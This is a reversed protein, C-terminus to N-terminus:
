HICVATPPKNNSIHLTALALKKQPNEPAYGSPLLSPLPFTVMPFCDEYIQTNQLPYIHNRQNTQHCPFKSNNPPNRIIETFSCTQWPNFGFGGDEHQSQVSFSPNKDRFFAHFSDPPPWATCCSGLTVNKWPNEQAGSTRAPFATLPGM